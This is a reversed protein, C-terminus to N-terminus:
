KDLAHQVSSEGGGRSVQLIKRFSTAVKVHNLEESHTAIFDFLERTDSIRMIQKNLEINYQKSTWTTPTYQRDRDYDRGKDIARESDASNDTAPETARMVVKQRGARRRTETKTETQRDTQDSDAEVHREGTAATVHNFPKRPRQTLTYERDSDRGRQIDTNKDSENYRDRERIRNEDRGDIGRDSQSDPGHRGRQSNNFAVSLLMM